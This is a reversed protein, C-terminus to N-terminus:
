SETSPAVRPTDEFFRKLQLFHKEYLHWSTYAVAFTALTVILANLLDDARAIRDPFWHIPFASLRGIISGVANHFVYMGYSYKGVSRLWPTQLAWRLPAWRSPGAVVAILSAYACAVLPFGVMQMTSDWAVSHRWFAVIVAAVGSLLCIWVARPALAAIGGPGRAALAVLGGAALADLRCPTLLYPAFKNGALIFAARSVSAIIICGIAVKMASKRSCFYIITPWLLYFHEEVALSWFFGLWGGKLDPMFASRVNSLYLWWWWSSGPPVADPFVGLRPIVITCLFIMGYYLPFIRLTRRAYFNRFYANSGKADFLIGTILFGSLVFFLDVGSWGMGLAGNILKGTMAHTPRYPFMHHCFVMLIAIGRLGDLPKIHRPLGSPHMGHARARPTQIVAAAESIASESM